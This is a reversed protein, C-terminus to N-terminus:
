KMIVSEMLQYFTEPHKNIAFGNKIEDLEKKEFFSHNKQDGQRMSMVSDILM